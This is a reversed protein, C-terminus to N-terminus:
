ICLRHGTYCQIAKVVVNTHLTSSTHTKTMKNLTESQLTKSM